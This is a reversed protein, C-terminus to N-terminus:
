VVSPVIVAAFILTIVSYKMTYYAKRNRKKLNQGKDRLAHVYKFIRNLAGTRDRDSNPSSAASMLTTGVWHNVAQAWRWKMPREIDCFLIIRTQESKNEAWHM